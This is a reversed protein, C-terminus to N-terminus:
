QRDNTDETKPIYAPPMGTAAYDALLKQLLAPIPNADKAPESASDASIKRRRGHSHKIKDQPYITALLQDTRKDVIWARSLDWSQYRVWVRRIHRMRAPLEFRVGKLQITGDSRRQVRTDAATFAQQLQASNPAQRAVSPGKLVRQIPKVGLERHRKQNYEMEAWAQTTQNLFDLTLPEVRHMMALLRGELQAWFSEQKGNQYPSYALTTNHEVALRMLGQGTEQALMASGNDTMLARPLGRKAFAQCLGHFLVEATEALYWQIHCCLRSCDDLICLVKAKHWQGNVDVVRSGEHFDLHWLAHVYASEFSRVEYNALRQAAQKQGATKANAKRQWGRKQMYRRVTSYSPMPGLEVNQAVQAALNDVHLQCSWAPNHQYQQDLMRILQASMAATKGLDSRPKRSLKDIPDQAHLAKYYWREITSAGVCIPKDQIPHRYTKQALQRIQRRLQGKPPPASLLPSVVSFRFIAWARLNPPEFKNM